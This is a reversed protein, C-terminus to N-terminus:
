KGVRGTSAAANDLRQGITTSSAAGAGQGGGAASVKGLFSELAKDGGHTFSGLAVLLAFPGAIQPAFDAVIALMVGLVGTGWLRKFASGEAGTRAKYVNMVLLMAISVLVLKRASTKDQPSSIAAAYGGAERIPDAM